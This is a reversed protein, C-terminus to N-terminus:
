KEEDLLLLLPILAKVLPIFFDEVWRLISEWSWDQIGGFLGPEVETQKMLSRMTKPNKAAMLCKAYTPTGIANAEFREQSVQEWARTFLKLRRRERFWGM